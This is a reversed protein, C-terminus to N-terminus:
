SPAWDGREGVPWWRWSAEETEGCLFRSLWLLIGVGSLVSCRCWTRIVHSGSVHRGAHLQFRGSSLLGAPLSPGMGLASESLSSFCVSGDEQAM